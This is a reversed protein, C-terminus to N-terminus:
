GKVLRCIEYFGGSLIASITVAVIWNVHLYDILM